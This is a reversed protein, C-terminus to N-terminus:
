RGGGLFPGNFFPGGGKSWSGLGVMGGRAFHQGIDARPLDPVAPYKTNHQLHAIPAFMALRKLQHNLSIESGNNAVKTAKM